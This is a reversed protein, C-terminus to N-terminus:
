KIAKNQQKNFGILDAVGSPYDIARSGPCDHVTLLPRHSKGGLVDWYEERDLWTGDFEDGCRRCKYISRFAEDRTLNITAVKM